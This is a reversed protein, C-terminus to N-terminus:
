EGKWTWSDITLQGESIGAEEAEPGATRAFIALIHFESSTACWLDDVIPEGAESDERVLQYHQAPRGDIEVPQVEALKGEGALEACVAEVTDQVPYDMILVRSSDTADQAEFAYEMTPLLDSVSQEEWGRPYSFSYGDTEIETMPRPAVYTPAEPAAGPEPQGDRNMVLYTVTGVALLVLLLAGVAVIVLAIVLPRRSRKAPAQPAPAPSGQWGPSPAAPGPAPAHQAPDPRHPSQTM